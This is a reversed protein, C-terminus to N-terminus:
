PERLGFFSRIRGLLHRKDVAIRREEAAADLHDKAAALGARRHALVDAVDDALDPRTSLISQFADKELRYCEVDTLAIVTATRPEGTMLSMEGFFTGAGLRAVERELGESEVRVSAEGKVILYLWHGESGQRTMVEGRAYPTYHLSEALHSREDESLHDFFAGVKLAELRRDHDAHMKNAKRESTNETVFVAQAPISLPLRARRLAFYVRTRVESDTPDDVALDTLWYRVAYRAYSDHLDVCICNPPPADAVNPIAVAQLAANVTAIVETPAFRFDVNFYVWRRLQRPQGTRKGQVLLQNRVLHSNPVIFTEWNTTEIRTSRWRVEIVIGRIDGIKIWDGVQVSHDMQLSLGAMINTLTDQLSLGVVATLVASTAIIGSLNLGLRSALVFIAIISAAAALIERMIRPVVIRMRPLVVGFVLLSALRIFAIASFILAALRVERYASVGRASLVGAVPLLALHLAVLAATGGLRKREDPAILRVVVWTVALAVLLYLSREDWLERGIASWYSM